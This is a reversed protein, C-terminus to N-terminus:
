AAGMRLDTLRGGALVNSSLELVIRGAWRYINNIRVTSRMQRMRLQQEEVTMSLSYDIAKAIESASFPNVLLASTLEKAAGAFSSLILAGSEDARSAAFEKAVLNMGDHLSTVLCFNAMRHLAMLTPMEVHEHVFEVPRWGRREWRQNVESALDLIKQNLRPYGSSGIRSPAGIQLFRLRGIYEPHRQFLYDLGLLKEPIGKTYDARDIGIGLFETPGLRRRWDEILRSVQPSQAKRSHEDFDISIPFARVRTTHDDWVVTSRDHSISSDFNREVTDLFNGCDSRLHFGLLDNGLMGDLLENKWPFIRMQDRNPWPIHWFQAVIVNEAAKKIMRPLLALHYDQIFVIAPKGAVEDLVAEAFLRNAERYSEWQSDIFSPHQFAVHCLPWLGENSLGHYYDEELKPTLWVRRLTYTPDEPPVAVRNSQDVTLRDADGSGHAIWVGGSARLIPDLAAAMGSAPRKCHVGGDTKVHIYPERNSVVIFKFDRLQNTVVQALQQKNWFPM